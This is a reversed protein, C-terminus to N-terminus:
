SSVRIIKYRLKQNDNIMFSSPTALKQHFNLRWFFSRPHILGKLLYRGLRIERYFVLLFELDHHRNQIIMTSHPSSNLCPRPIVITVCVAIWSRQLTVTAKKGGVLHFRFSKLLAMFFTDANEEEIVKGSFFFRGQPSILIIPQNWNGKM